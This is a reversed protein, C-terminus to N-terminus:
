CTRPEKKVSAKRKIIISGKELISNDKRLKTRPTSFCSEENTATSSMISQKSQLDLFKIPRFKPKFPQFSLIAQVFKDEAINKVVFMLDHILDKDAYSFESVAVLSKAMLTKWKQILFSLVDPSIFRLKTVESPHSSLSM